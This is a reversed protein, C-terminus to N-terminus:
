PTLLPSTAVCSIAASTFTISPCALRGVNDDDDDDDDDDDAAEDDDDRDNDGTPIDSLM